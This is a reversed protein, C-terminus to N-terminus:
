LINGFKKRHTDSFQLLLLNSLSFCVDLFSPICYFIMQITPQEKKRYFYTNKSHKEKKKWILENTVCLFFLM